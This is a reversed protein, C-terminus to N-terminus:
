RLSLRHMRVCVCTSVQNHTILKKDPDNNVNSFAQPTSVGPTGLNPMLEPIPSAPVSSGRSNSMMASDSDPTSLAHSDVTSLTQGTATTVSHNDGHSSDTSSEEKM